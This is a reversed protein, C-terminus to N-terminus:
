ISRLSIKIFIVKYGELCRSETSRLQRRWNQEKIVTWRLSRITTFAVFSIETKQLCAAEAKVNNVKTLKFCDINKRVDACSQKLRRYMHTIAQTNTHKSTSSTFLKFDIKCQRM